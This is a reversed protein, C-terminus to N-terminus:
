EAADERVPASSPSAVSRNLALLLAIGATLGVSWVTWDLAYWRSARSKLEPDVGDHFGTEIMSAFEPELLLGALLGALVFLGFAALLLGRRKTKWNAILAFVFLLATIPPLTEWFAKSDYGYEGQLMAFSSPPAEVLTSAVVSLAFLQAGLQLFCSTVLAMLTLNRINLDAM